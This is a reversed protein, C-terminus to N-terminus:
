SRSRRRAKAFCSGWAGLLFPQHDGTAPTGPIRGVLGGEQAKTAKIIGAQEAAFALVPITAAIGAPIAVAPGAWAFLNHAGWYAALVMDATRIANQALAAAKAIEILNKDESKQLQSYSSLLAAQSNYLDDGIITRITKIKKGKKKEGKEEEDNAKDKEKNIKRQKKNAADIEANTLQEYRSYIGEIDAELKEEAALKKEEEIQSRLVAKMEEQEARTLNEAEAVRKVRDRIAEIEEETHTQADIAASERHLRVAEQIKAAKEAEIRVQENTLNQTRAKLDLLDQANFQDGAAKAALYQGRYIEKLNKEREKNLDGQFKDLEAQNENVLVLRQKGLTKIENLETASLKAYRDKLRAEEEQTLRDGLVERIQREQDIIGQILRQNQAAQEKQAEQIDTKKTIAVVDEIGKKTASKIQNWGETIQATGKGRIANFAGLLVNGLGKALEAISAVMVKATSFSDIWFAQWLPRLQALVYILGAIGGAALLGTLAIRFVGMANAATFTTAALTKMSAVAQLPFVVLAAVGKALTAKFNFVLAILGKSLAAIGQSAAKYSNIGLAIIGQSLRGASEVLAITKDSVVVIVGALQLGAISVLQYAARLSLMTVGLKAVRTAADVIVDNNKIAAVFKTTEIVAM